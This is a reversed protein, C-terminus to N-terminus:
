LWCPYRRTNWHDNVQKSNLNVRVLSIKNVERTIGRILREDSTDLCDCAMACNTTILSQLSDTDRLIKIPTRTEDFNIIFDESIFWDYDPDHDKSESFSKLNTNHFLCHDILLNTRIGDRANCKSQYHGFNSM